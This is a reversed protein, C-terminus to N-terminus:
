VWMKKSALQTRKQQAVIPVGTNRVRDTCLSKEYKRTNDINEQKLSDM